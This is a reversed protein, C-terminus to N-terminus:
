AKHKNKSKKTNSFTHTNIGDSDGRAESSDDLITRLPTIANLYSTMWTREEHKRKGTNQGPCLLNDNSQNEM